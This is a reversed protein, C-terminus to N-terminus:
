LAFYHLTATYVLAAVAAWIGVSILFDTLVKLKSWNVGSKRRIVKTEAEPLRESFIRDPVPELGKNPEDILIM